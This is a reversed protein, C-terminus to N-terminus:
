ITLELAGRTGMNLKFESLGSQNSIKFFHERVIKINESGEEDVM